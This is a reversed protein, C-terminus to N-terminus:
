ADVQSANARPVAPLRVCFTSGVGVDSEAWIKGGHAEVLGKAIALGLGTGARRTRRAQWYRDFVHAIQDAPIGPGTDTVSFLVDDGRSEARLTIVGGEPTFKIANGVLNGFVQLLRDRDCAISSSGCRIEAKLRQNRRAVVENYQEAVEGVLAAALCSTREVSLRGAEIAEVDLLDDVLRRMRDAARRIAPLVTEQQKNREEPTDADLLVSVSLLITNLPGRLDHSVTALLDQRERIAREAREYLAANDLALAARRGLEEALDLDPEAYRRGSEATMFTLCGLQRGRAALPVVIISQVGLQALLEAHAEVRTVEKLRSAVAPYLIAGGPRASCSPADSWAGGAPLERLRAALQQKGADAVVVELREATAGDIVEDAVCIDALFPVALRALSSLTQRHDLSSALRVGSESLFRQRRESSEATDRRADSEAQRAEIVMARDLAVALQNVVANIFVLDAEELPATGEVQLVGFVEGQPIVLPLVVYGGKESSRELGLSFGSLEAAPRHRPVPTHGAQAFYEFAAGARAAAVRVAEGALGRAHWSFERVSVTKGGSRLLLNASRLPLARSMEALVGPVTHEASDFGALLLSIEYLREVREIALAFASARPQVSSPAEPRASPGLPKSRDAPDRELPTQRQSNATRSSTM